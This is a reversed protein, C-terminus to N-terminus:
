QIKLKNNAGLPAGLAQVIRNYYDQGQPGRAPNNFYQQLSQNNSQGGVGLSMDGTHYPGFYGQLQQARTQDNLSQDNLIDAYSRKNNNGGAYMSNLEDNFQAQKDQVDQNYRTADFSNPNNPDYNGANLDVGTVSQNQLGALAQLRSRDDASAVNSSNAQQNPSLYSSLDLNFTAQNPDIGLRTADAQSITGNQFGQLLNQRSADAATNYQTARNGLDTLEGQYAGGLEGSLTQAAQQTDQKTQNVLNQSNTNSQNLYDNLGGFQSKLDAAKQNYGQSGGLLASDLSKEGYNYTPRGFQQQLLSTRGATNGLSNVQQVSNQAQQSNQTIDRQEPGNYTGQLQRQVKDRTAQDSYANQANGIVGQNFAEDNKVGGQAVQQGFQQEGTDIGSKAQNGTNQVNGVVQNQLNQGQQQNANLYQNINTFGKSAYNQGPQQQQGSGGGPPATAASSVVTEGTPNQAQQDQQKKQLNFDEAYAM